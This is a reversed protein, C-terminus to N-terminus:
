WDSGLADRSAPTCAAWWTKSHIGQAVLRVSGDALCVLIGEPRPSQPVWFHCRNTTSPLPAAQFHTGPGTSPGTRPPRGFTPFISVSFVPTVQEGPGAAWANAAGMPKGRSGCLTLKETFLITTSAGDPMSDPIRANNWWDRFHGRKDTLCFVQANFAYGCAGWGEASTKSGSVRGGYSMSPDGPNQYIKIPQSRVLPFFPSYLTGRNGPPGSGPEATCNYLNNQEIYPLLHFFPNGFGSTGGLVTPDTPGGPFIGFGPPLYGISDQCHHAALGIQRLNNTSELRAAALRVRQVATLLLGILIGIIAIVVLM